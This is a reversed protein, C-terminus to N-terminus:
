LFITASHLIEQILFDVVFLLPKMNIIGRYKGSIAKSVVHVPFDPIM